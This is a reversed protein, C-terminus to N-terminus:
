PFQLIISFNRWRKHFINRLYLIHECLFSYMGWMKIESVISLTSWNKHFQVKLFTCKAAGPTHPFSHSTSFNLATLWGRVYKFPNFEPSNTNLGNTHFIKNAHMRVYNYVWHLQVNADILLIDWVETAFIPYKMCLLLCSAHEKM